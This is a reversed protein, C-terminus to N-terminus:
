LLRRLDDATLGADDLIASRTGRKISQGRHVHVSVMRRTLANEMIHASGRIRVLTFGGQKLARVLRGGDVVPLRESM